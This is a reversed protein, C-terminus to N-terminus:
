KRALKHFSELSTPVTYILALTDVIGESRTQVKALPLLWSHNGVADLAVSNM